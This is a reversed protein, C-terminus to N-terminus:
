AARADTSRGGASITIQVFDGASENVRMRADGRRVRREMLLEFYVPCTKYRDFCFRYAYGIADLKFAEACRGDARNLFPCYRVIDDM